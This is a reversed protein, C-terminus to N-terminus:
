PVNKKNITLELCYKTIWKENFLINSSSFLKRESTRLWLTLENENQIFYNYFKNKNLIEITFKKKTNPLIYCFGDVLEASDIKFEYKGTLSPANGTITQPFWMIFEQGQYFFVTDTTKNTLCVIPNPFNSENIILKKSSKEKPSIVSFYLTLFAILLGAFAIWLNRRSITISNNNMKQQVYYDRGKQIIRSKLILENNKREEEDYNYRSEVQIYEKLDEYITEIHKISPRNKKNFAKLIDLYGGNDNEYLYKLIILDINKM